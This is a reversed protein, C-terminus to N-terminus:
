LTFAKEDEPCNGQQELSMTLPFPTAASAPFGLFDPGAISFHFLVVVIFAQHDAAKAEVLEDEPSM